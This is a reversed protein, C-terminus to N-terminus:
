STPSVLHVPRRVGAVHVTRRARRDAGPRGRSRDAKAEVAVDTLERWLRLLSPSQGSHCWRIYGGLPPNPTIGNVSYFDARSRGAAAPGVRLAPRVLRD